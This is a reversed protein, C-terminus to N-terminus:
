ATVRGKLAKEILVSDKKTDIKEDIIAETAESILSVLESELQKRARALDQATRQKADALISDAREVAKKEADRIADRALDNATAIIEDAKLQAKRLTNDVSAALKQKEIQMEEGIKVGGDILERRELLMRNIPKFAYKKMVLLALVFTILQIVLAKGDVGLAGLGSSSEGFYNLIYM